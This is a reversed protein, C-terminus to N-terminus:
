ESYNALKGTLWGLKSEIWIRYNEIEKGFKKITTIVKMYDYAPANKM